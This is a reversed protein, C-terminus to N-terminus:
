YLTDSIDKNSLNILKQEFEEKQKNTLFDRSHEIIKLIHPDKIKYLKQRGEKRVDLLDANILIKLQQSITSQGKKLAEQITTVNNEGFEYLFELIEIRTQDALTKFLEILEINFNNM